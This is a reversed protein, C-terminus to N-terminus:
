PAMFRPGPNFGPGPFVKTIVWGGGRSLFGFFEFPPTNIVFLVNNHFSNLFGLVYIKLKYFFATKTVSSIYLTSVDLWYSYQM